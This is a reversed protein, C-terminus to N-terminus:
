WEATEIGSSLISAFANLGPEPSGIWARAPWGPTLTHELRAAAGVKSWAGWNISVGSMGQSRRYQALMDLFMNAAAHNAQGRNGLLSATSSFMVFLEPDDGATHRHLHWAGRAKPGLVEEFRSWEQNVLAGDRLVGALHFVGALRRGSGRVRRLM